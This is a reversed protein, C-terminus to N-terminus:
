YYEQASDYVFLTQTNLNDIIKFVLEKGDIVIYGVKTMLNNRILKQRNLIEQPIDVDEPLEDFLLYNRLQHSLTKYQRLIDEDEDDSDVKKDEEDNALGWSNEEKFQALRDIKNAVMDKLMDKGENRLARGQRYYQHQPVEITNDQMKKRMIRGYEKQRERLKRKEELKNLEEEGKLAFNKKKSEEKAPNLIFKEEENDELRPKKNQIHDENHWKFPHKQNDYVPSFASDKM